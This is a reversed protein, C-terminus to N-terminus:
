RKRYELLKQREKTVDVNKWSPCDQNANIPLGYPCIQISYAGEPLGNADTVGRPFDVVCDGNKQITGVCMERRFGQIPRRSLICPVDLVLGLPLNDPCPSAQVLGASLDIAPVVHNSQDFKYGSPLSDALSFWDIHGGYRAYPDYNDPAITCAQLNNFYMAPLTQPTGAVWPTGLRSMCRVIGEHKAGEDKGKAQAEARDAKWTTYRNYGFYAAACLLGLTALIAGSWLVVKRFGTHYVALILAVSAFIGLGISM